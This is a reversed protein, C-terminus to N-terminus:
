KEDQSLVHNFDGCMLLPLSVLPALDCLNKWLCKGITRDPNGYIFSLFLLPLGSEEVSTHIEQFTHGHITLKVRDEDWLLWIGRAYGM